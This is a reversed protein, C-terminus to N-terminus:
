RSLSKKPRPAEKGHLFLFPWNPKFPLFPRTGCHSGRPRGNNTLRSIIVARVSVALTSDMTLFISRGPFPPFSETREREIKKTFIDPGLCFPSRKTLLLHGALVDLFRRKVSWHCIQKCAVTFHNTEQSRQM